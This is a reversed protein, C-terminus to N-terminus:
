HAKHTTRLHIINIYFIPSKFVCTLSIAYGSFDSIHISDLIYRKMPNMKLFWIWCILLYGM